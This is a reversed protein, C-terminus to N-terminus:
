VAAILDSCVMRGREVLVVRYLGARGLRFPVDFATQGVRPALATNSIEANSAADVVSVSTGPMPVAQFDLKTLFEQGVRVVDESRMSVVRGSRRSSPMGSKITGVIHDIAADYNQIAGHLQNCHMVSAPEDGTLPQAFAFGPVTGDGLTPNGQVTEVTLLRQGDWQGRASTRHTSAQIVHIPVGKAGLQRRKRAAGNCEEHFALGVEKVRKTDLVGGSPLASDGLTAFGSGTALCPYTPMLQYVSDFSAVTETLGATLMGNVIRSLAVYSGQYPTGLSFISRFMAHAGLVEAAYRAVLGGMSHCVLVVQADPNGSKAQWASLWERCRDRLLRASIRNDRRWDYAFEFYNAGPKAGLERTLGDRLETYGDLKWFGPILTTSDFLKGVTVPAAATSDRLHALDLNGAQLLPAFAQPGLGWILKGDRYLTSGMIGPVVVLLDTFPKPTQGWAVGAASFASAVLLSRRGCVPPRATFYRSSRETM